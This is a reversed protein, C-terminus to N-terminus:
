LWGAGAMNFLTFMGGLAFGFLMIMVGSLRLVYSLADGEDDDHGHDDHGNGRAVAPQNLLRRVFGQRFAMTFGVIVMVIGLIDILIVHHPM